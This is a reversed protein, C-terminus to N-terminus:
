VKINDRERVDTWVLMAAFAIMAIFLIMEPWKLLITFMIIIALITFVQSKSHKM